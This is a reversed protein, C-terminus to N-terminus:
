ADFSAATTVDSTQDDTQDGSSADASTQDDGSADPQDAAPAEVGNNAAAERDAKKPKPTSAVELPYRDVTLTLEGARYAAEDEPSLRVIHRKKGGVLRGVRSGTEGAEMAARYADIANAHVYVLPEIEYGEIAVRLVTGDAAFEDRKKAANRVNQDHKPEYKDGYLRKAADRVSMFSSRDERAEFASMTIPAISALRDAKKPDAAPADAVATAGNDAAPASDTQRNKRPRGM